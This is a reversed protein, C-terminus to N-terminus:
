AIEKNLRVSAEALADAGIELLERFKRESLTFKPPLGLVEAYNEHSIVPRSSGRPLGCLREWGAHEKLTTLTMEVPRANDEDGEFVGRMCALGDDWPVTLQPAYPVLRGDLMEIITVPSSLARNLLVYQALLGGQGTVQEYISASEAIHRIETRVTRAMDKLEAYRGSPANDLEDRADIELRLAVARMMLLPYRRDSGLPIAALRMDLWAIIRTSLEIIMRLDAPPPRRGLRLEASCLEYYRAVERFERELEEAERRAAESTIHAQVSDFGQILDRGLFAIGQSLNCNQDQLIGLLQSQQVIMGKIQSVSQDLFSAVHDVKQDVVSLSGSIGDLKKDMRYVKVATWTGVGLNVVSVGLNIATLWPMAASIATQATQGSLQGMNPLTSLVADSLSPSGEVVYPLYTGTSNRLTGLGGSKDTIVMYDLPDGGSPVYPLIHKMITTLVDSM